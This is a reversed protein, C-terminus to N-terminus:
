IPTFPYPAIQLYIDMVGQTAQDLNYTGSVATLIIDKPISNSLINTKGVTTLSSGKDTNAVHLGLVSGDFISQLVMFENDIALTGLKMQYSTIANGNFPTILNIWADVLAWGPPLSYITYTNSMAATSLDTYTIRQRIMILGTWSDGVNNYVSIFSM